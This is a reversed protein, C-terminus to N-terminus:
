VQAYSIYLMIAEISLTSQLSEKPSSLLYLPSVNTWRSGLYKWARRMVISSAHTLPPLPLARRLQEVFAFIEYLRYLCSADVISPSPRIWYPQVRMYILAVTLVFGLWTVAGATSVSREHEMYGELLTPTHYMKNIDRNAYIRFANKLWTSLFLCVCLRFFVQDLV